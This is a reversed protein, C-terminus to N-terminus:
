SAPGETWEGIWEEWENWYALVPPKYQTERVGQKLFKTKIAEGAGEFFRAVEVTNLRGSARKDDYEANRKRLEGEIKESLLDVSIDQSSEVFVRYTSADEDALDLFTEPIYGASKLGYSVAAIAQDESIKEGTINTM